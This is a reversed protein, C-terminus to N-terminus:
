KQFVKFVNLIQITQEEIWDPAKELAEELSCPGRVVSFAAQVGLQKLQVDNLDLGGCLAITPVGSKQAKVTVGAIVKGALTQTDLRGEGTIVLHAGEVQKEFDVAKMVVQIGPVFEAGLFTILAAGLGGAAGGGVLKRMEIGKQEVVVESFHHLAEDLQKVMELSAGKQPGFIYSAGQIGCLTNEVDSAITFTCEPLQPFFDSEDVKQLNILDAGGEMLEEGYQNYFKMGLARLAGAGGDNTASGGLGIIFKRYGREVADKILEGTGYSSATLPFKEHEQLLPLGSAKAMEIVATEGDGLVGYSAKIPRGLPDQVEITLTKGQSSYVLNEMTGEGGDAMPLEIVEADSFVKLIGTKVINCIESATLSGKFSDPAVIVKM